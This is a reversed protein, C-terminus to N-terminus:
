CNKRLRSPTFPQPLRICYAGMVLHRCLGFDQEAKELWREVLDRKVAEVTRMSLGETNTPRILSVASSTRRKRLRETAMVIVDLSFGVKGIAEHIRWAEDRTNGPDPEMVLLDIDSDKTMSGSAGSGFLIIRDAPCAARIRRVIERIVDEDVSM